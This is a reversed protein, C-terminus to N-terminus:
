RQDHNGKSIHWHLVYRRKIRHRQGPLGRHGTRDAPHRLGAGAPGRGRRRGLGPQARGALRRHRRPGARGARGARSAAEVHIVRGHQTGDAADALELCFAGLGLEPQREALAGLAADVDEPYLNAGLHSLTADARGAVFLLPLRAAGRRPLSVGYARAIALATRSAWRAGGADHVAYRVRPSLLPRTVTM